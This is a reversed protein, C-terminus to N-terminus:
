RRGPLRQSRYIDGYTKTRFGRQQLRALARDIRERDVPGAPVVVSIADGRRLAKPKITAITVNTSEAAVFFCALIAGLESAM